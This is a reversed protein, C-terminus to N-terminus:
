VDTQNARAANSHGYHSVAFNGPGEAPQAARFVFETREGVAAIAFLLLTRADADGQRATERAADRVDPNEAHKAGCADGDVADRSGADTSKDACAIARAGREVGHLFEAGCRSEGIEAPPSRGPEAEGGILAHFFIERAQCGHFRELFELCRESDCRSVDARSDGDVIRVARDARRKARRAGIRTKENWNLVFAARENVAEERSRYWDLARMEEASVDDDGDVEFCAVDILRASECVNEAAREVDNLTVRVQGPASLRVHDDLRVYFREHPIIEAFRRFHDRSSFCRRERGQGFDAGGDVTLLAIRGRLGAIWGEGFNEKCFYSIRM